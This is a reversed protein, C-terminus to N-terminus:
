KPNRLVNTPTATVINGPPTGYWGNPGALVVRVNVGDRMGELVLNGNGGVRLNHWALPDTAVDSVHFM